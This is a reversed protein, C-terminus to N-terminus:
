EDPSTREPQTPPDAAPIEEAESEIVLGPALRKLANFIEAPSRPQLAATDRGHNRAAKDSSVGAVVSSNRATASVTHAAKWDEEDMLESQKEIAKRTAEIARKELDQHEEALGAYLADMFHTQAVAYEDTKTRKWSSLTSVPIDIGQENLRRAARRASGAELVLAELGKSILLQSYGEGPLHNTM